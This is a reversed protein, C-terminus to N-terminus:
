RLPNRTKKPNQRCDLVRHVIAVEDSEMKYYIVFPFRKALLWHHGFVKRHIGAYLALSDIDAFISDFFYGGSGEGQRDYFERGAALDRCASTLLRIKV